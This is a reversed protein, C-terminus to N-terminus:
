IAVYFIDLFDTDNDWTGGVIQCCTSDHIM